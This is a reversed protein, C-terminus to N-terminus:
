KYQQSVILESGNINKDKQQETM